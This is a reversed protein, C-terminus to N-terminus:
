IIRRNKEVFQQRIRQLQTAVSGDLRKWNYIFVFGGELAPDVQTKLEMTMHLEDGAVQKIREATPEDIPVATTLLATGIHRDIRYLNIFSLIIYQLIAERHNNLILTIFRSTQHSVNEGNGTATIMISYKDRISLVPSALVEKLHPLLAFNDALRKMEEYVVEETNNTKAYQLLAKAYRSSLIGIDMNIREIRLIM